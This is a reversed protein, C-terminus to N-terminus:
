QPPITLTVVRLGVRVMKDFGVFLLCVGPTLLPRLRGLRFAVGREYERLVRISSVLLVLVLVVIGMVVAAGPSM